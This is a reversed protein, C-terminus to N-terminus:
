SRSAFIFMRSNKFDKRNQEYIDRIFFSFVAPNLGESVDPERMFDTYRPM